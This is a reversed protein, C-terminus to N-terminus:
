IVRDRSAHSAQILTIAQELDRAFEREILVELYPKRPAFLAPATL